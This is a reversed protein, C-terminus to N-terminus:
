LAHFAAGQPLVGYDLTDDSVFYMRSTTYASPSGVINNGQNIRESRFAAAPKLRKHKVKGPLKAPLDAAACVLLTRAWGYRIRLFVSPFLRPLCFLVGASIRTLRAM